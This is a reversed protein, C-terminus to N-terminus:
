VILLERVVGSSRRRASSFALLRQPLPPTALRTVLGSSSEMRRHPKGHGADCALNPLVDRLLATCLLTTYVALPLKEHLADCALNPLM